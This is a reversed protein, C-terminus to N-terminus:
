GKDKQTVLMMNMGSGLKQIHHIEGEMTHTKTFLGWDKQRVILWGQPYQNFFKEIKPLDPNPGGKENALEVLPFDGYLRYESRYDVMGVVPNQSRNHIIHNVKEMFGRVSRYPSLWPLVVIYFLVCVVLMAAVTGGAINKFQKRISSLLILISLMLLLLGASIMWARPLPADIWNVPIELWGFALVVLGAGMIFFLVSLFVGAGTEQWSKKKSYFLAELKVATM